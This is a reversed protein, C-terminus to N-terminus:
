YASQITGDLSLIERYAEPRRDRFLNWHLRYRDIAELDIDRVLISESEQDCEGLLEGTHDSIFSAGYFRISGSKGEETGIRNSAIVPVINAAAHGRMTNQWHKLAITDDSNLDSGIASPYLIVEAGKLALIRAAEPFWQDWCILAGIRAYKSHWVPFGLDGPNFYYKESYGPADPIHSKRYKGLIRGDADIMVLTNFLANNAREFVSVPLVVELEQALTAMQQVTQNDEVPTALEYYKSDEDICFYPTEFLEQILIIKAGQQAAERVLREANAVNAEKDWSCKMQTTAIKM